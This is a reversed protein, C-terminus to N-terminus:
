ENNIIGLMKKASVIPLSNKAIKKFDKIDSTIFYDMKHELAIQYLVADELDNKANKYANQVILNSCPLVQVFSFLEEMLIKFQNFYTSKRVLYTTTNIVTESFYISIEEKEALSILDLASAHEQRSHVFFDVVINTDLFIKYAM